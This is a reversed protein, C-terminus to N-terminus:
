FYTTELIAAIKRKACYSKPLAVWLQNLAILCSGVNQHDCVYIVSFASCRINSTCFMSHLLDFKEIYQVYFNVDICKDSFTGYMSSPFSSRKYDHNIQCKINSYKHPMM